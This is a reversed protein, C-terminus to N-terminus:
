DVSDTVLCWGNWQQLYSYASKTSEALIDDKLRNEIAELNETRDSLMLSRTPQAADRLVFPKGAIYVLRTYAGILILACCVRM